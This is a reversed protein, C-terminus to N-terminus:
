AKAAVAEVEVLWDPSALAAVIVLTSAPKLNGLHRVRIERYAAVDESRVLYGNLRVIDEPGMGAEALVALLDQVAQDVQAEIGRVVTGDAKVGVQGSVFLWRAEPPVETAHSYPSAPAHVAKPNRRTLM